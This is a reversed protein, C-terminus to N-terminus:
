NTPADIGFTSFMGFDTNFFIDDSSRSNYLLDFFHTSCRANYRLDNAVPIKINKKKIQYV